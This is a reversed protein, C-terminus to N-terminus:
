FISKIHHGTHGIEESCPFTLVLKLAELHVSSDFGKIM